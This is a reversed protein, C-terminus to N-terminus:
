RQPPSRDAHAPAIMAQVLAELNGNAGADTAIRVASSVQGPESDATFTVTVLHVSNAEDGASFTLRPDDSEVATIRFPEQGQVVLRRSVSQGPALVGLMLPSPRVSLASVVVGEVAVPVRAARPNQDNTVLVLQERLYGPPADDALGVVLDYTVKGGTRGTEALRTELFPNESEIKEIKWDGRGAYSVTLRREPGAGQNVSGFQVAGPHVVVDSRIYSRVLLQVEARFPLDFVVTLTSDKRGLFNRTDLVTVIEATEWTKLRRRSIETATCGCTSRISAIRVDEEYINELTFRHEMKAGRAVVGFDHSTHDFMKRAWEQAAAPAAALTAALAAALAPPLLVSRIRCNHPRKM